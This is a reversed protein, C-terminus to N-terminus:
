RKPTAADAKRAGSYLDANDGEGGPQGDMGLSVIDFDSNVVGPQMVQYEHGWPDLLDNASTLYPRDGELLLHLDFGDPPVTLENDALYLKVTNRLSEAGAKAVKVKSSGIFGLVNPVLLAALIAVITVAVIVELLTFARRAGSRAVRRRVISRPSRSM